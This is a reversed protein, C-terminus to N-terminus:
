ITITPKLQIGGLNFTSNLAINRQEYTLFGIEIYRQPYKSQASIAGQNKFAKIIENRAKDFETDLRINEISTAKFDNFHFKSFDFTLSYPVTSPHIKNPSNNLIKAYSAASGNYVPTKQPNNNQDTAESMHSTEENLSTLETM